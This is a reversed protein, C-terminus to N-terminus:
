YAVVQYARIFILQRISAVHCFIAIPVIFTPLWSFPWYLLAFDTIELGFVQMSTPASLFAIAIINILLLLSFINWLLLYRYSQRMKTFGFYAIIPVTLGALIDFNYGSFTMIEPLFAELYLGYLIIEVPIRILHIYTLGRLPLSDIFKRGGENSFTIVLCILAPIIGFLAIKPPFSGIDNSYVGSLSLTTQLVLWAVLSIFLVITKSSNSSITSKLVILYFSVLVALTTLGFGVTLYTSINHLM